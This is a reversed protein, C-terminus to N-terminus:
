EGPTPLRRIMAKSPRRDTDIGLMRATDTPLDAVWEGIATYSRCGAVVACVATTVVVVLRHHIGRRARPDPYGRWPQLCAL